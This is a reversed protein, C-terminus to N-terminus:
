ETMTISEPIHGWARSSVAPDSREGAAWSPYEGGARLRPYGDERLTEKPLPSKEQRHRLRTAWSSRQIVTYANYANHRSLVSLPHNPLHVSASTPGARPLIESLHIEAGHRIIRLLERSFQLDRPPVSPHGSYQLGSRFVTIM